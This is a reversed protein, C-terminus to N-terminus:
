RNWEFGFSFGAAILDEELFGPDVDANFGLASNPNIGTPLTNARAVGDWMYMIHAGGRIGFDRTLDYAIELRYDLVPLFSSGNEATEIVGITTNLTTIDTARLHQNNYNAALALDNTSRWRGRQKVLRGGVHAGGADNTVRQKFRNFGTTGNIIFGTTDELTNDSFNVYRAGIYPELWGGSSLAQRFVRNVEVNAFRTNFLMPNSILIDGGNLFETGDIYEFIVGWGDEDCTMWGVDFRNGWSYNADGAFEGGGSLSTTMRDMTFYFGHSPELQEDFNFDLPAFVQADYDFIGPEAFPRTNEAEQVPHPYYRPGPVHLQGHTLSPIAWAAILAGYICLNKFAM